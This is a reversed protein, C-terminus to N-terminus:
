TNRLMSFKRPTMIIIKKLGWSTAPHLEFKCSYITRLIKQYYIVPGNLKQFLQCIKIYITPTVIVETTVM